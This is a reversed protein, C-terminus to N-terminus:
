SRHSFSWRRFLLAGGIGLLVSVLLTLTGPEPVATAIVWPDNEAISGQVATPGTSQFESVWSGSPLEVGGSYSNPTASRDWSLEVIAYSPGPTFDFVTGYGTPCTLATQTAFLIGGGWGSLPDDTVSGGDATYYWIHSSVLHTSGTGGIAGLTGDTTITGSIMVTGGRVEDTQNVPYNAFSYIINARLQTTSLAVIAACGLVAVSLFHCVPLSRKNTSMPFDERKNNVLYGNVPQRHVPGNKPSFVRKGSLRSALFVSWDGKAEQLLIRSDSV